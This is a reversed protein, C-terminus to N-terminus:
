RAARMSDDGSARTWAWEPCGAPEIGFAPSTTETWDGARFRRSLRSHADLRVIESHTLTRRHSRDPNIGGRSPRLTIINPERGDREGAPLFGQDSGRVGQIADARKVGRCGFRLRGGARGDPRGSLPAPLTRGQQRDDEQNSDPDSNVENDQHTAIRVPEPILGTQRSGTLVPLGGGAGEVSEGSELGQGSGLTQEPGLRVLPKSLGVDREFGEFGHGRLIGEGAAGAQEGALEQQSLVSEGVGLDPKALGQLQVRGQDLGTALQDEDVAHLEAARLEVGLEAGEGLPHCEVLVLNEEPAEASGHVPVGGLDDLVELAEELGIRGVAPRAECQRIVEEAEISELFGELSEFGQGGIIGLGQGAAGLDGQGPLTRVGSGGPEGLPRGVVGGQGLESTPEGEEMAVTGLGDALEPHGAGRKGLIAFGEGAEGGGEAQGTLGLLGPANLGGGLGEVPGGGEELLNGRSLSAPIRAEPGLDSEGVFGGAEVGLGAGPEAEGEGLVGVVAGEALGEEAEPGSGCGVRGPGWNRFFTILELDFRSLISTGAHTEAKRGWFRTERPSHETLAM